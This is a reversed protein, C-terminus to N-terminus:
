TREVRLIRFRGAALGAVSGTFHAVLAGGPASYALALGLAILAALVVVARAPLRFRGLLSSSVPNSAVVYGVLAFAAGSAGLVATSGGFTAGVGVQAVAALGGTSVFFAHFRAGTTSYAVIGGAIAIVMANSLLHAPSAHAYVSTVLSWPPDFLPPALVFLWAAGARFSWWTLLSVVLM